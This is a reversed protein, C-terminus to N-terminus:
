EPVSGAPIGRGFIEAFVGAACAAVQDLVIRSKAADSAPECVM